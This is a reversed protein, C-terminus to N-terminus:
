SQTLIADRIHPFLDTCEHITRYYCYVLGISGPDAWACSIFMDNSDPLIGCRAVGSLEGPNVDVVSGPKVGILYADLVTKYDDVTGTVALINVQQTVHEPDSYLLYVTGTKDHIRYGFAGNLTGAPPSAYQLTLQGITRPSLLHESGDAVQGVQGLVSRTPAQSVAATQTATTRPPGSGLEHLANLEAAAALTLLVALAVGAPVAWRPHRRVSVSRSDTPPPTRLDSLGDVGRVSM